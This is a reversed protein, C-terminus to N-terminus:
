FWVGRRGRAPPANQMALANSLKDRGFGDVAPFVGNCLPLGSGVSQMNEHAAV